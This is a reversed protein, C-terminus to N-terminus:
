GEQSAGPISCSTSFPVLNQWHLVSNVKQAFHLISNVKQAVKDVSSEEVKGQKAKLKRAILLARSLFGQYISSKKFITIGGLFAVVLTM